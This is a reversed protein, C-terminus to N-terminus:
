FLILSLPSTASKARNKVLRSLASYYNQLAIYNIIESHLHCFHTFYKKKESETIRSIAILRFIEPSINDQQTM